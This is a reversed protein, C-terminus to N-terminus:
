GGRGGRYENNYKQNIVSGHVKLVGSYGAGREYYKMTFTLTPFMEGLKKILPEPPSWATRFNYFISRKGFTRKVDCFGWKTGWNDKCWEYGGSNYGDTISKGNADKPAWTVQQEQCLRNFLEDKDKFEKPYPIIRDADLATFDSPADKIRDVVKQILTKVPECSSVRNAFKILDDKPGHVWMDCDCWNPM